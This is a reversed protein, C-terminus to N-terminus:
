RRKAAQKNPQIRVIGVRQSCCRHACSSVGGKGPPGDNNDCGQGGGGQPILDVSTVREITCFEASHQYEDDHREQEFKM